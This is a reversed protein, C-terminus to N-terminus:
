FCTGHPDVPAPNTMSQHYETPKALTQRHPRRALLSRGWLRSSILSAFLFTFPDAIYFKGPDSFISSLAMRDATIYAVLMNGALLLGILRTGLGVILLIGGFFELVRHGAGDGRARSHRPERLLRTVHSLNHLKGWGTQM